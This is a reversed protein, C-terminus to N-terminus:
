LLKTLCVVTGAAGKREKITVEDVLLRMLKIGRGRECDKSSCTDDDGVLAYGEGCDTVEIVMRDPYASVTTLIGTGCTHDVANGLAEGAALTLDFVADCSFSLGQALQEIRARAGSLDKADVPITTRWLPLVSPDLAQVEHRSDAASVPILDVIRSIKLTRLVDPTVNVLSLLGGQERMRRMTAILVSMGASDVYNVDAMNIVIRKRGEQLFGDLADRLVPATRVCLDGSLPLLVIDHEHSMDRKNGM